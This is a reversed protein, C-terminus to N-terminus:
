CLFAPFIALKRCSFSSITRSTEIFNRKILHNLLIKFCVYTRQLDPNIRGIKYLYNILQNIIKFM